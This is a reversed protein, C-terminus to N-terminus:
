NLNVGRQIPGFQKPYNWVCRWSREQSILLKSTCPTGFFPVSLFFDYGFNLVTPGFRVMYMQSPKIRSLRLFFCGFVQCGSVLPTRWQHNLRHVTPGAANQFHTKKSVRYLCINLHCEAPCDGNYLHSLM